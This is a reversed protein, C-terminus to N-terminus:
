AVLKRYSEYYINNSRFILSDDEKQTSNKRNQRQLIKARLTRFNYGRGQNNIYRMVGNISETYANTVPYDFYNFIEKHWNGIATVLPQFAPQINQSIQLELKEYRDYAEHKNKADYLKYFEEKIKYALSLHEYKGFWYNITFHEYDALKNERKYLLFRDNKLDIRQKTTLTARIQKRVTEMAVNGMRVVHFKDIVIIADPNIKYVVDRYPRWMDMAVVTISHKLFLNQLYKYIIEKKRNELIDIIQNNKIDTIVCRMKKNIMIEDIGIHEYKIIPTVSINNNYKKFIARINGETTGIENALQTFSKISAQHLIFEELRKTIKHSSSMEFVKDIFVAQCNKCQYRQLNLILSVWKARIPLDKYTHKRIGFKSFNQQNCKPCITIDLIIPILDITITSNNELVGKINYNKLNLLNM